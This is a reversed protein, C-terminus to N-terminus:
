PLVWETKVIRMPMAQDILTEISLKSIPDVWNPKLEKLPYLVFCRDRYSPHPVQLSAELIVHDKWAIIDLDITRDAWRPSGPPRGHQAEYRKLLQLLGTPTESPSLLAMANLYPYTGPGLPESEYVGSFRPPHDSITSLFGAASKLHAYRDGVNSGLGIFVEPM